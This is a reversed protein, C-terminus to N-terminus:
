GGTRVEQRHVILVASRNGAAAVVSPTGDGDIDRRSVTGLRDRLYAAWPRPTSTEVAVRWEGSGLRRERRTVTTRVTVAAGDVDAVDVSGNVARVGVVLTRDDVAVLAPSRDFAAGAATEVVVAGAAYTVGRTGDSWALANAPVTAVVGDGDLVRVERRVAHLQGDTFAVTGRGRGVSTGFLSEFSDAVRAADARGTGSEVVTGVSATLTGMAVVTVALLLAVGVVHSQARTM